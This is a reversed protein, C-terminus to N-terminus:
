KTVTVASAEHQTGKMDWAISVKEGVKLDSEKFGAPLMYVTGDALTVSHAKADISKIAGVTTTSALAMGSAGIIAIMAAPLIYSRM